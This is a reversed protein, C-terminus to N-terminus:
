NNLEKVYFYEQELKRLRVELIKNREQVEQYRSGSEELKNELSYM